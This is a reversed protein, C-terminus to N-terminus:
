PKEYRIDGTKANNLTIGPGAVITFKERGEGEEKQAPEKAGIIAWRKNPVQKVVHEVVTEERTGFQKFEVPGPVGAYLGIVKFGNPPNDCGNNGNGFPSHPPPECGYGNMWAVAKELTDEKHVREKEYYVTNCDPNSAGCGMLYQRHPDVERSTYVVFYATKSGGSEEVAAVLTVIVFLFWMQGKKKM